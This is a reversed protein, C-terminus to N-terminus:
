KKNLIYMYICMCLIHMNYSIYVYMCMPIVHISICQSVYLTWIFYSLYVCICICIAYICVHIHPYMCKILVLCQEKVTICIRDNLEWLSGSFYTRSDWKISAPLSACSNGKRGLTVWSPAPSGPLQGGRGEWCGAQFALSKVMCKHETLWTGSGGPHWHAGELTDMLAFGNEHCSVVRKKM